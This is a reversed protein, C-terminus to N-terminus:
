DIFYLERKVMKVNISSTAGLWDSVEIVFDAGPPTATGDTGGEVLTEIEALYERLKDRAVDSDGLRFEWIVGNRLNEGYDKIPVKTTTSGNKKLWYIKASKFHGIVDVNVGKDKLPQLDAERIVYDIGAAEPSVLDADRALVHIEYDAAANSESVYIYTIDGDGISGNTVTVAPTMNGGAIAKIVTNVFLKREAVASSTNMASHGAGSYTINNKSYIYYNNEADKETVSYYRSRSDHDSNHSTLTYWVVVDEDEMNLAWYQGHTSGITITETIQYPYQTICGENVQAVKTTTWAGARNFDFRADSIVGSAFPRLSYIGRDTGSLSYNNYFSMCFNNRYYFWPTFGQLEEVYATSGAYSTYSPKMNVSAYEPKEYGDRKNESLSVGYKDLGVRNRLAVTLNHCADDHYPLWAEAAGGDCPYGRSEAVGSAWVNRSWWLDKVGTGGDSAVHNAAIRWTVTDHTFLVAKGQDIFAAINDVAGYKNDIDSTKQSGGSSNGGVGFAGYMDAFGIVVMDYIALHDGNDSITVRQKDAPYQSWSGSKYFPETYNGITLNGTESSGNNSFKIKNNGQPVFVAYYNGTVHTMKVGPWTTSSGGDSWYHAYPQSWNSSNYFYVYKGNTTSLTQGYPTGGYAPDFKKEFARSDIVDVEVKYGVLGEVNELLGKFGDGSGTSMDLTAGDGGQYKPMIQLVKVYKKENNQIASYGKVSNSYATENGSSDLEVVEIKWALMGIFNDSLVSNIKYEMTGTTTNQIQFKVDRSFYLENRDDSIGEEIGKYVGDSNKDVYLKIRYTVDKKGTFDFVFNINRGENFSSIVGDTYKPPKPQVKMTIEPNGTFRNNVAGSMTSMSYVGYVRNGESDTETLMELYDYIDSTPYVSYVDLNYLKDSLIVAKGSKAFKILKEKTIDTIDNDVGRVNGLKNDSYFKGTNGFNKGEYKTQMDLLVYRKGDTLKEYLYETYHSKNSLSVTMYSTNTTTTYDSPLVGLANTHIKFLDGFALYVYGNLTRDNFITKGSSDKNLLSVDEGIIIIDYESMIDDTMGNLANPTVCTVQLYNRYDKDGGNSDWTGAGQMLLKKGLANAGDLGTYTFSNCPQVELVKVSNVSFGTSPKSPPTYSQWSGDRYIKNKKITLDSSQSSGYKFIVKEAYYPVEVGYINTDIKTMAPANAWAANEQGAESWMYVHPTGSGCYYYIWAASSDGSSTEERQLTMHGYDYTAIQSPKSGMLFQLVDSLKASSGTRATVGEGSSFDAESTAESYHGWSSSSSKYLNKGDTPLTIDSSENGGSTSSQFDNFKVMTADSPLTVKYTGDALKTMAIGPWSTMTTNSSSWYYVKVRSWGISNDFYITKGTTGGSALNLLTDGKYSFFYDTLWTNYRAEFCIDVINTYSYSALQTKLSINNLEITRNADLYDVLKNCATVMAADNISNAGCLSRYILYFKYMFSANDIGSIECVDMIVPTKVTVLSEDSLELERGNVTCRLLEKFCEFKMDRSIFNTGSKEYTDFYFDDSEAGSSTYFKHGTKGSWAEYLKITGEDHPSTTFVILDASKIVDVTLDNAEVTNVIIKESLIGAQEGFMKNIFSDDGKVEYKNHIDNYRVQYGFKGFGNGELRKWEKQSTSCWSTDGSAKMTTLKAVLGDIVEKQNLFYRMEGFGEYPVIELINFKDQEGSTIRNVIFEAYRKTTGSASVNEMDNNGFWVFSGCLIAIVLLISLVRTPMNTKRIFKRIKAM